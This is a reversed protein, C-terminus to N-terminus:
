YLYFPRRRVRMANRNKYYTNKCNGKKFEAIQYIVTTLKLPEGDGNTTKLLETRDENYYRVCFIDGTKNIINLFNNLEDVSEEITSIECTEIVYWLYNTLLEELRTFPKDLNEIEKDIDAQSM